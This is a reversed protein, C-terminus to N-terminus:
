STTRPALRRHRPGQQGSADPPGDPLEVPCVAQGAHARVAPHDQRPGAARVAQHHHWHVGARGQGQDHAPGQPRAPRAGARRHHGRLAHRHARRARDAGHRAGQHLRPRRVGAHRPKRGRLRAGHPLGEPHAHLLRAQRGLVRAEERRQGANGRDHLGRVQAAHYLMARGGEAVARMTLLMRRVDAHYHLADAVKEPEKKGSLARM